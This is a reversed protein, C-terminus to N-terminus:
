SILVNFISILILFLMLYCNLLSFCIIFILASLKLYIGALIASLFSDSYVHLWLLWNMFPFLPAKFVFTLFFIFLFTMKLLSFSIFFNLLICLFMLFTLFYSFYFLLILSRSLINISPVNQIIYIFLLPIMIVEYIFFFVMFNNFFMFLMIFLFSCIFYNFKSQSCLSILWFLILVILFSYLFIIM